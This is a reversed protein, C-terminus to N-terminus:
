PDHHFLADGADDDRAASSIRGRCKELSSRNLQAGAGDVSAAERDTLRTRRPMDIVCGHGREIGSTRQL